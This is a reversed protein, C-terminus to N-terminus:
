KTLIPQILVIKSSTKLTFTSSIFFIIINNFNLFFIFLLLLLFIRNINCCITFRYCFFITQIIIM